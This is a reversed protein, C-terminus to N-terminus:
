HFRLEGSNQLTEAPIYCNITLIKTLERCVPEGGCAAFILNQKPYGDAARTLINLFCLPKPFTYDKGSPDLIYPTSLIQTKTIEILRFQLFTEKTQFFVASKRQCFTLTQKKLDLIVLPHFQLKKLIRKQVKNAKVIIPIALLIGIPICLWFSLPLLMSLGICVPIAICNCLQWLIRKKRKPAFLFIKGSRKGQYLSYHRFHYQLDYFDDQSQLRRNLKVYGQLLSM